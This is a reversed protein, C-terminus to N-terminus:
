KKLVFKGVLQQLTDAQASLEESTASTEQAASSNSQVVEAIQNVGENAENMAKSQTDSAESLARSTEAISQIGDIVSTLAEAASRAAHNGDDIEKLAGEILERTDVASKASQEALQRIEDAVVAFGRGADGARAAEISANLSLLNTQSAIDEINATINEIKRSTETIRVMAESLKQMQVRSDDAQRAYDVAQKHAEKLNKASKDVEETINTITSTLEEIAGAQETAGEALSQASQALNDSGAAVQKSAEDVQTLTAIMQHKLKQMSTLMISFKGVYKDHCGSTAIFNGDAMEGLVYGIDSILTNLEEAMYKSDALMEAIEDDYNSEPFPSDLDGAALLKLRKSTDALTAEIENAFKNSVKNSQLRTAAILLLIVAICVFEIINLQRKYANGKTVYCDMLQKMYGYLTDYEPTLKNMELRQANNSANVDSTAGQRIIEDSLTWYDDIVSSINDCIKKAESYNCQETISNFYTTFSDRKDFYIEQQESISGADLYGIVARLASRSDAFVTMAKGIDGQIFGYSKLSHNFQVSTFVILIIALVISISTINTILNFNKRLRTHIRQSDNTKKRDEM